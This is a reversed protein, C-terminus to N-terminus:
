GTARGHGLLAILGDPLAAQWDLVNHGGSFERYTVDYGTARLVDRLHRNAALASVDCGPPPTSELLGVDLHWCLPLRARAEVQRALWGADAVGSPGRQFSGSQALVKGFVGPHRVAAFAAGLGGLSSGVIATRTPEGTLRYRQRAWPILEEALFDTFAPSCTFDRGREPSEVFMATLPPLAGDALLNDLITPTPIAGTYVGGDLLLLLPYGDGDTAYGPPTYVWLRYEEGGVAAGCLRHRTVRGTPAGWRSALYPQPPTGPLELASHVMRPFRSPDEEDGRFVVTRPNLPDVHWIADRGPPATTAAPPALPQNIFFLYATRLDRRARYTAHWLDTEGLRTMQRRPIDTPHFPSFVVVSRTEETARWLFTVLLHAEDHEVPEVLPTGHEAVDRWFAGLAAANGGALEGWLAAIRPSPPPAQFSM